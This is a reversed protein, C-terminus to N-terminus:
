NSEGATTVGPSRISSIRNPLRLAEFYLPKVFRVGCYAAYRSGNMVSCNTSTAIRGSCLNESLRGDKSMQYFADVLLDVSTDNLLEQSMERRSRMLVRLPPLGALAGEVENAVDKAQSAVGILQKLIRLSYLVAQSQALLHIDAWDLKKGMYGLRLFRTLQEPKPLRARNPELNYIESLAFMTWCGPSPCDGIMAQVLALRQSLARMEITIQGESVLTIRDVVIRQGRRVYEHVFSSRRTVQRSMNLISYGLTRYGRGAVWACRRAPDDNLIPLYMHLVGPPSNVDNYECQSFIECVRADLCQPLQWTTSEENMVHPGVFPQYEELFRLYDSTAKCTRLPDKSRRVLATLGLRPNQRLEYAFRRVDALGLRRSLAAPTLRSARIEAETPKCPDWGHMVVSDLFLVSGYLGLDHLLLDSDNTLVACGKVRCMHACDVDAERPVMVTIDAWPFDNLNPLSSCLIANAEKAINEKNWRCRLDEFVAPVMFPNEPLYKYKTPVSRALLVKEPDIASRGNVLNQPPELSNKNRICFLEHKLRSKELRHLRAERKAEPLAGDFFINSKMAHRNLM